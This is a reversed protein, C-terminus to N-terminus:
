LEHDGRITTPDGQPQQTEPDVSQYYVACPIQEVGCESQKNPLTDPGIYNGSMNFWELDTDASKVKAKEPAPAMAVAAMLGAAVALLGLMSTLKKM